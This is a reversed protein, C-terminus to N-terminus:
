EPQNPQVDTPPKEEDHYFGDYASHDTKQVKGLYPEFFKEHDDGSQNEPSSANENSNDSPTSEYPTMVPDTVNIQSPHENPSIRTDESTTEVTHEDPPTSTDESIAETPINEVNVQPESRDVPNAMEPEFPAVQEHVEEMPEVREPEFQVVQQEEIIEQSSDAQEPTGTLIKQSDLAHDIEKKSQDILLTVLKELQHEQQSTTMPFKEIVERLVRELSHLSENVQLKAETLRQEIAHPNSDVPSNAPTQQDQNNDKGSKKFFLKGFLLNINDDFQNFWEKTFICM